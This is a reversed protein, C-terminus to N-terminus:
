PGRCCWERPERGAVHRRLDRNCAESNAIKTCVEKYQGQLQVFETHPVTHVRADGHDNTQIGSGPDAIASPPSHTSRTLNLPGRRGTFHLSALLGSIASLMTATTPPPPANGDNPPEPLGLLEAQDALLSSCSGPAPPGDEITRDKPVTHTVSSDNPCSLTPQSTHPDTGIKMRKYVPQVETELLPRKRFAPPICDVPVDSDFSLTLRSLLMVCHM